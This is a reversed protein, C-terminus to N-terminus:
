AAPAAAEPSADAAKSKKPTEAPATLTEIQATSEALKDQNTKLDSRAQDRERMYSTAAAEAVAKAQEAALARQELDSAKAVAADREQGIVALDHGNRELQSGMKDLRDNADILDKLLGATANTGVPEGGPKDSWIDGPWPEGAQFMRGEPETPSFLKTAVILTSPRAM